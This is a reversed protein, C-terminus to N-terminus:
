FTINFCLFSIPGNKEDLAIGRNLGEGSINCSILFHLKDLLRTSRDITIPLKLSLEFTTHSIWQMRQNIANTFLLMMAISMELYYNEKVFMLDVFQM